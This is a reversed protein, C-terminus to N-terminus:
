VRRAADMYGLIKQAEDLRPPDCALWHRCAASYLAIACLTNSMREAAEEPCPNAPHGAPITVNLGGEMAFAGQYKRGRCETASQHPSSRLDNHDHQRGARYRWGSQRSRDYRQRCVLSGRPNSM